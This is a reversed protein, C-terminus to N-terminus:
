VVDISNRFLIAGSDFVLNISGFSLLFGELLRRVVVVEILSKLEYIVTLFNGGGEHRSNLRIVADSVLLNLPCNLMLLEGASLIIRSNQPVKFLQCFSIRFLKRLSVKILVAAIECLLRDLCQLVVDLFEVILLVLSEHGLNSLAAIVLFEVSLLCLVGFDRGLGKILCSALLGVFVNQTIFSQVCHDVRHKLSLLWTEEETVVIYRASDESM